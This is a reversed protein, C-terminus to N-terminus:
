KSIPVNNILSCKGFPPRSYIKYPDLFLFVVIFVFLRPCGARENVWGLATNQGETTYPPEGFFADAGVTSM